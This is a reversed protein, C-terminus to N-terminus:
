PSLFTTFLRQQYKILFCFNKLPILHELFDYFATLTSDRRRQKENKTVPKGSQENDTKKQM